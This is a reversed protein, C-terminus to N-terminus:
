VVVAANRKRECKQSRQQFICEDSDFLETEVYGPLCEQQYSLLYCKWLSPYLRATEEPFRQALFLLEEPTFPHPQSDYWFRAGAHTLFPPEADVRRTLKALRQRDVTGPRLNVGCMELKSFLKKASMRKGKYYLNELSLRVTTPLSNLDIGFREKYYDEAGFDTKLIEMANQM